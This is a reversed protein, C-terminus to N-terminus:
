YEYIRVGVLSDKVEAWHDKFTKPGLTFGVDPYVEDMNDRAGADYAAKLAAKYQQETLKISTTSM